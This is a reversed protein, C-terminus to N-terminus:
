QEGPDMSSSSGHLLHGLSPLHETYMALAGLPLQTDVQLGRLAGQTGRYGNEGM